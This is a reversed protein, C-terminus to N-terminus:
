GRVVKTGAFGDGLRIGEPEQIIKVLEIVAAALGLLITAPLLLCGVLAGLCPIFGATTTVVSLAAGVAFIANRKASEQFGIPGGATKVVALGQARKGLSGGRFWVDRALMYGLILLSGLLAFGQSVWHRGPVGMLGLVLSIGVSLLGIVVGLGFAVGIDIAAAVLRKQQLESDTM